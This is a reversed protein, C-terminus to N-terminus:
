ERKKRLIFVIFVGTLGLLVIYAIIVGLIDSSSNSNIKDAPKEAIEIQLTDLYYIQTNGLDIDKFYNFLRLTINCSKNNMVLGLQSINISWNHESIGITTYKTSNWLLEANSDFMQVQMFSIESRNDYILTWSATIGITENAHYVQEDTEFSIVHFSFALTSTPFSFFQITFAMALLLLSIKIKKHMRIM